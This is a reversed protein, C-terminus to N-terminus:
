SLQELLTALISPHGAYDDGSEPPELGQHILRRTVQARITSLRLAAYVRYFDLDRVQHGTRAEYSAVVDETACFGPLGPLGMAEATGQNVEHSLLFWALDLERPGLAAMDWDLVAVPEFERFVVNGLRADGWSLVPEGPDSPWHSEIWEFAREIVPVRVGDLSVTWAYHDQQAAVHARLADVNGNTALHPLRAAPDPTAHVAALCGITGDQVRRREHPAADLLWGEIAYSPNGTPIEGHVREMVLFPSGLAEPSEEFAYVAPVPVRDLGGLVELVAAQTALPYTPFLPVAEARPPLRLVLELTSSGADSEWTASVLVSVASSGSGRPPAFEELSVPAGVRRGLWAAFRERLEDLGHVPTTIQRSGDLAFSRPSTNM